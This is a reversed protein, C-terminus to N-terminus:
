HMHITLSAGLAAGPPLLHMAGHAAAAARNPADPAHSVPEVCVVNGRKPAYVQLNTAWAGTAHLALVAGDPWSIEAAGDWGAFHTDLGELVADGGMIGATPRPAIPLNRADRGFVTRAAFRLRTGAPRPFFPHWGLGMPTPMAGANVLEASLMLGNASLAARLRAVAHFPPHDLSCRLTASDAALSEVEWPRERLLGHIATSELPRNVPMRWPRGGAEIRGGDLRNTWPAMLFAGHFGANPDGGPPIPVLLERGACALRAFAAGQAPLLAAEWTGARLTIM